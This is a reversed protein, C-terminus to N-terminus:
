GDENVKATVKELLVTLHKLAPVVYEETDGGPCEASLVQYTQLFYETASLLTLGWNVFWAHCIIFWDLFILLQGEM